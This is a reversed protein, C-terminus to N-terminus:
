TSCNTLYFEYTAMPGCWVPNTTQSKVSTRGIKTGDVYVECFPDLKKKAKGSTASIGVSAGRLIKLSFKTAGVTSGKLRSALM